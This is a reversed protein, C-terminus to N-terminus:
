GATLVISLMNARGSEVGTSASLGGYTGAPVTGNSDAIQGDVHGGGSGVLALRQTTSGPTTWASTSSNRDAWYSLVWSNASPVTVTPTSHNTQNTDSAVALTPTGAAVGAYDVFEMDVKTSAALPVTITAGVDNASGTRQFVTTDLTSTVKQAIQTWGSLGSPNSKTVGTTATTVFVLQTDGAGVGSPVVVAPASSTGNFGAQAAFTVKPTTGVVTVQGTWPSSQGNRNDTVVLTVTYTGSHPFTHTGNSQNSTSGDGFDWSYGTVTGDPDTSNRGDFSCTLGNCSGISGTATPLQNPFSPDGYLFMGRSRWDNGDKVPGSIVTDSSADPIGGNFGVMHLNGTSRDAYYLSNGSVTMGAINSFNAGNVGTRHVGALRRHRQGPQLVPLAPRTQGFLTYYLRGNSYFAGTVNPLEGYYGSEVSAYTQGSGTQVNSWTPDDYPDVLTPTGVTRATSPPRYFNGDRRGYFITNGVM